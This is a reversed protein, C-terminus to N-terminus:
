PAFNLREGSDSRCYRAVVEDNPGDRRVPAREVAIETAFWGTAWRFAAGGESAVYYADLQAASTATETQSECEAIMVLRSPAPRTSTMSRLEDLFGHLEDVPQWRVERAVERYPFLLPLAILAGLWIPRIADAARQLPRSAIAALPAVMLVLYYTKVYMANLLFPSLWVISLALLAVVRVSPAVSVEAGEFRLTREAPHANRSLRSEAAGILAVVILAAAVGLAWGLGLERLLYSLNAVVAAGGLKQLEGGGRDLDLGVVLPILLCAGLAGHLWPGRVSRAANPVLWRAWIWTAVPLVLVVPYKVLMGTMGLAFACAILARRRATDRDTRLRAAADILLLVGFVVANAALQQFGSAYRLLVFMGPALTALAAALVAEDLSSGLRRMLLAWLTSAIGLATVNVIAFFPWWGGFVEHGVSFLLNRSILRLDLDPCRPCTVAHELYLYDDINFRFRAAIWVVLASAVLAALISLPSRSRNAIAHWRPRPTADATPRKRAAFLAVLAVAWAAAVVFIAPWWPDQAPADWSFESERAGVREAVADLLAPPFGPSAVIRFRETLLSTEGPTAPHFLTLVHEAEGACRYRAVISTREVGGGDFRCDGALSVGAGLIESLLQESGPRIMPESSTSPACGAAALAVVLGLM